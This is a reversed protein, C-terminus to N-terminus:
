RERERERERKTTADSRSIAKIRRGGGPTMVLKIGARTRWPVTQEADLVFSWFLFLFFLL